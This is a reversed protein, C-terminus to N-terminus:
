YLYKIQTAQIYPQMEFYLEHIARINDHYILFIEVTIMRGITKDYLKPLYNHIYKLLQKPIRMNMGM